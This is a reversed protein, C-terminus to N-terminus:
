CQRLGVKLHRLCVSFASVGFHNAGQSTDNSDRQQRRRTLVDEEL